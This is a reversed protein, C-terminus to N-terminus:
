TTVGERWRKRIVKAARIVDTLAEVEDELYVNPTTRPEAAELEEIREDAAELKEQLAAIIKHREAREIDFAATMTARTESAIDRNESVRRELEKIRETNTDNIGLRINFDHIQKANAIRETELRKVEDWAARCKQEWTPNDPFTKVPAAPMASQRGHSLYRLVEAEPGVVKVDYNPIISEYLKTKAAKTM